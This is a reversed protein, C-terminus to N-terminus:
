GHAGSNWPRYLGDDYRACSARMAPAEGYYGLGSILMARRLTERVTSAAVGLRRAIARTPVGALFKLRAIERAQRMAVREAPM